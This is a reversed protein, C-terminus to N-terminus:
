TSSNVEWTQLAFQGLYIFLYYVNIDHLNWTRVTSDQNRLDETERVEEYRSGFKTERPNAESM